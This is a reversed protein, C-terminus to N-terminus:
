VEDSPRTIDEDLIFKNKAVTYKKEAIIVEIDYAMNLSCPLKDTDKPEFSVIYYDDAFKIGDNLKKQIRKIGNQCKVTFYIMDVKGSFNKFKFKLEYNDGRFFEIVM